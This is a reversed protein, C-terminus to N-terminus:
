STELIKFAQEKLEKKKMVIELSKLREETIGANKSNGLDKYLTLAKDLNDLAGEEEEQLCILVDGYKYYTDACYELRGEYKCIKIAEDFLRKIEKKTSCINESSIEGRLIMGSLIKAELRAARIKNLNDKTSERIGRIINREKNGPKDIYCDIEDFKTNIILWEYSQSKEQVTKNMLKAYDIWGIGCDNDGLTRYIYELHRYQILIRFLDNKSSAIEICKLAYKAALLLNGVREKVNNKSTEQYFRYALLYTYYFDLSDAKQINIAWKNFIQSHSSSINITTKKLSRNLNKVKGCKTLQQKLLYIFEDTDYKLVYGQFHKTRDAYFPNRRNNNELYGDYDKHLIARGYENNTKDLEHILLYVKKTMTHNNNVIYRIHKVIDYVDSCSYGMILVAESTSRDIDDYMFIKEIPIKLRDINKKNAVETLLTGVMKREEFQKVCGHLKLYIKKGKDKIIDTFYGIGHPNSDDPKYLKNIERDFNEGYAREFHLDFNTTYIWNVFGSKMIEALFYHNANPSGIDYFKFLEHFIEIKQKKINFDDYIRMLFDELQPTENYVQKRVSKDILEEGLENKASSLIYEYIDKAIPIGSNRSLGAGYLISLKGNEMKSIEEVVQEVDM